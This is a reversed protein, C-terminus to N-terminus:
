QVLRPNHDNDSLFCITANAGRIKQKKISLFDPSTSSHDNDSLFFVHIINKEQLFDHTLRKTYKKQMGEQKM